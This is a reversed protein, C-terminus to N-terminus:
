QNACLWGKASRSGGSASDPYLVREAADKGGLGRQRRSQALLQYDPLSRPFTGQGRDSRIAPEHSKSRGRRRVGHFWESPALWSDFAHRGPLLAGASKPLVLESRLYQSQLALLFARRLWGAGGANGALVM